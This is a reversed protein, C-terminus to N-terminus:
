SHLLLHIVILPAVKGIPFSHLCSFSVISLNLYFRDPLLVQVAFNKAFFNSLAAAVLFISWIMKIYVTFIFDGFVSFFVFRLTCINRQVYVYLTPLPSHYILWLRLSFYPFVFPFIWFCFTRFINGFISEFYNKDRCKKYSNRTLCFFFVLCRIFFQVQLMSSCCTVCLNWDSEM